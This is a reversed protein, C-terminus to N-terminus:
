LGGLRRGQFSSKSRRYPRHAPQKPVGKRAKEQDDWFSPASMAEELEAIKKKKEDGRSIEFHNTRKILAQLKSKDEPLIMKKFDFM